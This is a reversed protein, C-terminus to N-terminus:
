FRSKALIDKRYTVFVIALLAFATMGATLGLIAADNSRTITTTGVGRNVRISGSLSVKQFEDYAPQSRLSLKYLGRSPFTYEAIVTSDSVRLPVKTVQGAEDTISLNYGSYPIRARSDDDQIDFYLESVEGAIPDDDPNSHFVAAVRAAEDVFLVHAHAVPTVATVLVMISLSLAAYFRRM